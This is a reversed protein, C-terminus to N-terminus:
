SGLEGESDTQDSNVPETQNLAAETIVGKLSFLAGVEEAAGVPGVTSQNLWYGTSLQLDSISNIFVGVNSIDTTLANLSVVAIPEPGVYGIVQEGSIARSMQISVLQSQQPMAEAIEQVVLPFRIVQRRVAELDAAAANLSNVEAILTDYDALDDAIAKRAQEAEDAATERDALNDQQRLSVNLLGAAILVAIGVGVTRRRNTARDEQDQWPVLSFSRDSAGSKSECLAVGLATAYRHWRGLSQLWAVQPEGPQVVIGLSSAMAPLLGPAEAKSGVLALRGIARQDLESSYYALTRRVGEVVTSVGAQEASARREAETQADARSHYGSLGELHSELEDAVNLASEGVGVTLTRSFLTGGQDRIVIDTQSEGVSVVASVPSATLDAEAPPPQGAEGRLSVAPSSLVSRTLAESALHVAIPKLGAGVAADLLSQRTSAHIAVVLTSVWDVSDPEPGSESATRQSAGISAVDYIAEDLPYSLLEEIDFGASRRLVDPSASPLESRRVIAQRGDVSMIVRKSTFGQNRWLAKMASCIAAPDAVAGQVFATPPLPVEGAGVVKPRKGRWKQLEVARIKDSDIMLGVVSDAM